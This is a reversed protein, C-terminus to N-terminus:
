RGPMSRGPTTITPWALRAQLTHASAPYDRLFETLRAEAQPSHNCAESWAIYWDATERLEHPLDGECAEQMVDACGVYNKEEFLSIGRNILAQYDDYAPVGPKAASLQGACVLGLCAVIARKRFM